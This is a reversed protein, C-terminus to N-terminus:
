SSGTTNDNNNDKIIEGLKKVIEDLNKFAQGDENLKTIFEEREADTAKPKNNTEKDKNDSKKIGFNLVAQKSKALNQSIKKCSDDTFTKVSLAYIIDIIREFLWSNKIYEYEKTELYNLLLM